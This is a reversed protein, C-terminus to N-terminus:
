RTCTLRTATTTTGSAALSSYRLSLFSLCPSHLANSHRAGRAPGCSRGRAGGGGHRLGEMCRGWCACVCCCYCRAENEKQSPIPTFSAYVRPTPAPAGEKVEVGAHREDQLKFKALLSDIDDEGGQLNLHPPSFTLM